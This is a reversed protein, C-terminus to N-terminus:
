AHHGIGFWIKVEKQSRPRHRNRREHPTKQGSIRQPVISLVSSVAVKELNAEFRNQALLVEIKQFRHSVDVEVRNSGLQDLDEIFQCGDGSPPFGHQIM